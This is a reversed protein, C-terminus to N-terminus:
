LEVESCVVEERRELLPSRAESGVVIVLELVALDCDVVTVLVELEVTVEELVFPPDDSLKNVADLMVWLVLEDAGTVESTISVDESVAVDM